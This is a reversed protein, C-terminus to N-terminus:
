KEARVCHCRTSKKGNSSINIESKFGNRTLLESVEDTSYLSFIGSEMHMKQMQEKDGFALILRGGPKLIRYMKSLCEDPDPWFYITNLSYIIDFSNDEYTANMFDDCKLIVRNSEILNKLRKGATSFMAESFDVGEVVGSQMQGAIDKLLKGSGFGIELVHDGPNLTLQRKVLENISTHGLDFMRPMVIRGFLGSPKRAQRSFFENIGM